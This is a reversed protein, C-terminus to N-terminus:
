IDVSNGYCPENRLTEMEDSARTDVNDLRTAVLAACLELRPLTVRKVPAVRGKAMVLHVVVEGSTTEVRLYVAAGYTREPADCFVHLEYISVNVKRFPVLTRPFKVETLTVLESKWQLWEKLIDTPAEEDRPVGCQWMRQLLIKARVTYPSICGLPDFVKTSLQLLQRKTECTKLYLDDPRAYGLLDESPNWPVGLTKVGTGVRPHLSDPQAAALLAVDSDSIWKTLHFGGAIMIEASERVLQEAEKEDDCSVAIDDVYMDHLLHGVVREHSKQYREIHHQLVGMALFPSCNLGFCIRKFRFKRPITENAKDRWVYRCADQDHEHLAIQLFMKSIDAQLGIRFRRFRLLIALLDGQLAPGAELSDNLSRNDYRASADFVIRCRTSFNDERYVAHPLYWTKGNNESESLIEEAWGNAVYMEIAEAYTQRLRENRLRNETQRLRSVAYEYNNPLNPNRMKWPLPVVYREGNYIVSKKLREIFIQSKEKQPEKYKMGISELEWFKKIEDDLREEVTVHLSVATCCGMDSM